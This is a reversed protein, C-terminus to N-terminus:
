RIKLVLMLLIPTGLAQLLVFRLLVQTNSWGLRQRAHDHLPFRTARFLGVKFFRLLFMKLLGTAGNVFVVGAVVVLLVPNGTGLVLAGLLFGLPRSGADGMLVASPHANHWLYGALGGTLIFAMMGYGVAEDYHPVELYRAVEAHGVIGYLVIGVYFLAISALSGSLGDVGDTCNTANITIWILCAAVPVYIWPSVPIPSKAIPLWIEVTQLQCLAAAGLLSVVLDVLGLRYESWGKASRDDLYGEAMMLLTCGLLELARAEFPLVLLCVGVYILFVIIGAGVPKGVSAAAGVADARGHDRPLLHWLRPLLLWTLLCSLSAGLGILLLRSFLLRMPGFYPLLTEGIWPIM